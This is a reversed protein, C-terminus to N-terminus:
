LRFHLSIPLRAADVAHCSVAAAHARAVPPRERHFDLADIMPKQVDAQAHRAAKKKEFVLRALGNAAAKGAPMHVYEAGVAILALVRARHAAITVSM